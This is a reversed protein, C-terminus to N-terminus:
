KPAPAARAVLEKGDAMVIKSLISTTAGNKAAWCHVTVQDGPNLSKRVWGHELMVAPPETEAVWHAVNGKDDKVDFYIQSHPNTWEFSTIVGKLVVVKDMDYGAAGHHALVPQSALLCVVAALAIGASLKRQM